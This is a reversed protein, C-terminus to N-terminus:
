WGRLDVPWQDVVEEGDLVNITDHYAVTPDIHGPTVRVRDGPKLSGHPTFVLHEDALFWTKGHDVVEPNGHDMGFSKLGADAVAYPRDQTSVHLVTSLVYLAQAFPLGYTGFYSDMFVYSGAQIETAVTNHQYTATSGASIIDGGVDAAAQALLQMAAATTQGRETRDALATAHGEYGMVGRVELGMTRASTALSGAREPAVGCRPLGVNVDIVVERVGGILAAHMTEPSDIALTIRHGAEVMQGIRTADLTENAILIDAEVGAKALGVAEGVTATTLGPHGMALQERALATCKHAKIHPRLRAGPLVASLAALNARMAAGDVVLAPTRLESIRM